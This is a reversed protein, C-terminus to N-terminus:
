SEDGIEPCCRWRVQGADKRGNTGDQRCTGVQDRFKDRAICDVLDSGMGQHCVSRTSAAALPMGLVRREGLVDETRCDPVCVVQFAACDTDRCVMLALFGGQGRRHEGQRSSGSVEATAHWTDVIRNM